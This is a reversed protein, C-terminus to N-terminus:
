VAELEAERESEAESISLLPKALGAFPDEVPVGHPNGILGGLVTGRHWEQCEECWWTQVREGPRPTTSETETYRQISM